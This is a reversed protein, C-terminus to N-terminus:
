SLVYSICRKCKTERNVKFLGTTNTDMLHKFKDSTCGVHCKQKTWVFSFSVINRRFTKIRKLTRSNSDYTCQISIAPREAIDPLYINENTQYPKTDYHTAYLTQNTTYLLSETCLCLKATKIYKTETNILCACHPVPSSEQLQQSFQM